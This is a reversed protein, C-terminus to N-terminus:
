RRPKKRRDPMDQITVTRKAYFARDGCSPCRVSFEDPLTNFKQVPILASCKRCTVVGRQYTAKPLLQIRRASV